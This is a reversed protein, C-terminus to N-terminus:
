QTTRLEEKLSPRRKRDTLRFPHDLYDGLTQGARLTESREGSMRGGGSSQWLALISKPQLGYYSFYFPAFPPSSSDKFFSFSFFLIELFFLIKNQWQNSGQGNGWLFSTSFRPSCSALKVILQYFSDLASLQPNELGVPIQHLTKIVLTQRPCPIRLLSLYALHTGGSSSVM